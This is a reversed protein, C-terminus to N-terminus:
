VITSRLQPATKRTEYNRYLHKVVDSALFANGNHHILYIILIGDQKLFDRTFKDLSSENNTTSIRYLDRIFCIRNNLKLTEYLM